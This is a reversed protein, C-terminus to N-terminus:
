VPFPHALLVLQVAVGASTLVGWRQYISHSLAATAVKRHRLRQQLLRLLAEVMGAPHLQLLLQQQLLVGMEVQMVLASERYKVQLAPKIM